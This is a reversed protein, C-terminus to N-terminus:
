RGGAAMLSEILERSVRVQKTKWEDPITYDFVRLGGVTVYRCPKTGALMKAIFTNSTLPVVDYGKGLIRLSPRVARDAHNRMGIHVSMKYFTVTESAVTPLDFPSLFGPVFDFKDTVVTPTEYGFGTQVNGGPQSKFLGIEGPIIGIGFHLLRFPYNENVELIDDGTSPTPPAANSDGFTTAGLFRFDLAGNAPIEPIEADYERHLIYGRMVRFFWLDFEKLGTVPFILAINENEKLLVKTIPTLLDEPM